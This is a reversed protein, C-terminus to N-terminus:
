FIDLDRGTHVLGKYTKKIENTIMEIDDGGWTLQHHLILLKPKAMNAIRAVDSASTHYAAHYKKWEDPLRKYSAESYGEHILIDAGIAKEAVIPCYTTDGSIVILRDATQIRYGYADKWLGHCVPFAEISIKDDSFKKTENGWETTDVRWGTPNQPQLGKIRRDIDQAYAALINSAMEGTGAPGFLQLPQERELVWPTLILDSLGLTHDSHLHTLFVHSLNKAQLAPINHKVSAEAARRVTGTGADFIYARGDTVIATAPGSRDPFPNPNGTGLLIVNTEASAHLSIFSLHLLVIIKLLNSM